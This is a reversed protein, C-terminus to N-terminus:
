NLPYFPIARHRHQGSGLAGRLSRGEHPGSGKANQPSDPMGNEGVLPLSAEDFIEIPQSAKLPIPIDVRGRSRIRLAIAPSSFGSAKLHRRTLTQSRPM